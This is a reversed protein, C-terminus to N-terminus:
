LIWHKVSLNFFDGEGLVRQVFLCPIWKPYM